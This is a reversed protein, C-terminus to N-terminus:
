SGVTNKGKTIGEVINRTKEVVVIFDEDETDALRVMAGHTKGLRVVVELKGEGDESKEEKGGVGDSHRVKEEESGVERFCVINWGLHECVPDFRESGMKLWIMEKRLEQMESSLTAEPLALVMSLNELGMNKAVGFFLFAHTSVQIDSFPPAISIAAQLLPGGFSHACWIIKRGESNTETRLERISEMLGAGIGEVPARRAYGYSLVRIKVGPYTELMEPLLDRLWLVGNDGNTWSNIPHGNQGHIAIIDVTADLSDHIMKLGISSPDQPTIPVPKSTPPQPGNDNYKSIKLLLKGFAKKM